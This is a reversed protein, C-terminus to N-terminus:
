MSVHTSSSLRRIVEDAVAQDDLLVRVLARLTDANTVRARGVRPGAVTRIWATLDEYLPATLDLSMRVTRDSEDAPRARPAPDSTAARQPRDAMRAIKSATESRRSM